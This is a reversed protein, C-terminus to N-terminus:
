AHSASPDSARGPLYNTATGFCDVLMIQGCRFYM